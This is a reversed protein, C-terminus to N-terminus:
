SGFDATVRVARDATIRIDRLRMETAPFNMLPRTVGNYKNLFPAILGSILPGLIQDGTCSLRSLTGDLREDIDLRARFRLGAPAIGVRTFLKLDVRVTRGDEVALKLRTGNVSLGYHRAGKRAAALLLKEVDALTVELTMRGDKADHLVLLPRGQEDRAFVLRADDATMQINVRADEVAVRHGLVELRGADLAHVTLYKESPKRGEKGTDVVADCFDVRIADVLPYTDGGTTEVIKADAPLKLSRRYGRAMADAFADATGPRRDAAFPFVCMGKGDVWAKRERPRRFRRPRRRPARAAEGARPTMALSGGGCLTFILGFFRRRSTVHSM